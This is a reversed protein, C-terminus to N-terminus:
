YAGSAPESECNSAGLSAIGLSDEPSYRQIEAFDRWAADCFKAAEASRSPELASILAAIRGYFHIRQKRWSLQSPQAKLPDDLLALGQRAFELGKELGPRRGPDDPPAALALDAIDSLAISRGYKLDPRDPQKVILDGFLAAANQLTAEAKARDGQLKYVRARRLRMKAVDALADQLEQAEEPESRRLEVVQRAMDEADDAYAALLKLKAEDPNAAITRSWARLRREAAFVQNSLWTPDSEDDLYVDSARNQAKAYVQEAKVFDKEDYARDGDRINQWFELRTASIDDGPEPGVIRTNLRKSLDFLRRIAYDSGPMSKLEIYITKTMENIGNNAQTVTAVIGLALVVTAALAIGLVASVAIWRGVRRRSRTTRYRRSAEVFAAQDAALRLQPLAPMVTALDEDPLWAIKVTDRKAMAADIIRRLENLHREDATRRSDIRAAITDHAIEYRDDAQRLIRGDRLHVLATDIAAAPFDPLLEGVEARRRPQKTGEATVFIGLITNVAAKPAEPVAAEVAKQAAAIQEDVFGALVTELTGTAEILADTFVIPSGQAAARRYLQDLYIQLYVLQYTNLGSGLRDIVRRATAAGNQLAVGFHATTKEIVATLALPGMAEVRLRTEFLTPVIEEYNSLQAIYDERLSLIVRCSVDSAILAAVDTFFRQREDASGLVFAEEFQDFILYPPRLTRRFVSRVAGVIEADPAVPKDAAEALRQRLAVNIDGDRRVWVPLWDVDRYRSQLGCQILSTKGIGSAGYVVVLKAGTLLDYLADIERQRGFFISADGSGYADLFKFPSRQPPLASM